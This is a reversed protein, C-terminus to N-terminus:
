CRKVIQENKEVITLLKLRKLYINTNKTMQFKKKTIKTNYKLLKTNKGNKPLKRAKSMKKTM